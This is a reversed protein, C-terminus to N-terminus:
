VRSLRARSMWATDFGTVTDEAAAILMHYSIGKGSIYPDQAQHGFGRPMGIVGPMMGDTLHVRVTAAGVPTELRAQECDGLGLRKATVPNIEVLLDRKKLVSDSVIKTMFPTNAQSDNAACLSDVPVLTLPYDDGPDPDAATIAAMDRLDLPTTVSPGATMEIAGHRALTQWNKGHRAKLAAEMSNWPLAFATKGGVAAALALILDGPHRTNYVPRVAAPSFTMWPSPGPPFAVRDDIREIGTHVPLILDAMLATEDMQSTMSVIFPIDSLRKRTRASAKLTYAPNAEVVWLMDVDAAHDALQHLPRFLTGPRKWAGYDPAATLKSAGSCLLNLAQFTLMEDTRLPYDGQGRGFLAVPKKATAFAAALKRIRSESIGTAAAADALDTNRVLTGAWTRFDRIRTMAAPSFRNQRLIEAIMGTVLNKESGPRIPIWKGAAQAATNSLRSDTHFLQTGADKWGSVTRIMAVPTGWGEVLGCGLSLVLDCDAMDRSLIVPHGVASSFFAAAATDATEPAYLHTSGYAHFFRQMMAPLTGNDSRNMVGALANARGDTQCKKLRKVMLDLAANWSVPVFAGSGREGSRKLPKVVRAPGYSLQLTSAGQPCLGGGGLPDGPLGEISIPRDDMCRVHIGCGNACLLCRAAVRSAAGDAPVPTWPWNQTWIATDDALKWPLPTGLTGAAAGMGVALFCRRTLNM